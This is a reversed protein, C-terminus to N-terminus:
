FNDQFLITETPTGLAWIASTDVVGTLTTQSLATSVAHEEESWVAPGGIGLSLVGALTMKTLSLKMFDSLVKREHIPEIRTRHRKTPRSTSKRRSGSRTVTAFLQTRAMPATIIPLTPITTLARLSPHFSTTAM